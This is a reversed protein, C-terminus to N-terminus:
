SSSSADDCWYGSWCEYHGVYMCMCVTSTIMQCKTDNDLQIIKNEVLHYCRDQFVVVTRIHLSDFTNGLSGDVGPWDLGGLM